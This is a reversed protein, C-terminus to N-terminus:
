GPPLQDTLVVGNANGGGINTIAINFGVQDGTNVVPLDPTKVVELDPCNDINIAVPAIFDKMEASFSASSRSKVYARGFHTCENASFVGAATLNIAAEGFTKDALVRPAGPPIPDTVNFGDNVAGEAFGAASLNTEPGWQGSALWRRMSLVVNNGGSAFDFSILMDGATRQPTLQNASTSTSQNFEFDINASGLTNAREWGLYLFINDNAMEHSVYFRTLDSKNNPISGNVVSPVADDEKTGNGFSNDVQGSPRDLAVVLEPANAWDTAPSGGNVGLNGDHSEFTSGFLTPVTRDELTVIRLACRRRRASHQRSM